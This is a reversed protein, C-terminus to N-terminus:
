PAIKRELTLDVDDLSLNLRRAKILRMSIDLEQGDRRVRMPVIGGVGTTALIELLREAAEPAPFGGFVVIEDGNRVGAKGASSFRNVKKVLVGGSATLETETIGFSIDETAKQLDESLM